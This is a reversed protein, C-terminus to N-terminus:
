EALGILTATKLVLVMNGLNTIKLHHVIAALTLINYHSWFSFLIFFIKPPMLLSLQKALGSIKDSLTTM